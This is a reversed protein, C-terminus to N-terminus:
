FKFLLSILLFLVWSPVIKEYVSDLYYPAFCRIIYNDFCYHLIQFKINCRVVYFSTMSDALQLLRSFFLTSNFDIQNSIVMTVHYESVLFFNFTFFFFFQIASHRVALLISFKSSARSSSPKRLTQAMSPLM